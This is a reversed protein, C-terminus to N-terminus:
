RNICRRTVTNVFGNTVFAETVAAAAGVTTTAVIAATVPLDDDDWPLM